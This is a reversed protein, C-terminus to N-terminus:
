RVKRRKLFALMGIGALLMGYTEPEPVATVALPEYGIELRTSISNAVVNGELHGTGTINAGNALISGYIFTGVQVEKADTFNYIVRDRLAEFQGDQGGGFTVQNGTASGTVNIVVNATSKVDQLVLNSLQSANVNFVQTDASNDGTLYIGGYKFEVTGNATQQALSSSLATLQTKAAGFDVVNSQHHLDLYAPSTSQGGYVGYGIQKDWSTIPGISSNTDINTAPGTYIAGGGIHVDGGIVLSPGDFGYPTRYGVSFGTTDLNGGVALRGEVDVVNSANGYFFGSFGKALGLDFSIADAQAQAACVVSFALVALSKLKMAFGKNPLPM